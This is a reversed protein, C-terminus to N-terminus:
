QSGRSERKSFNIRKRIDNLTDKQLFSPYVMESLAELPFDSYKEFVDSFDMKLQALERPILTHYKLITNGEESLFQMRKAEPYGKLEQRRQYYLRFIDDTARSGWFRSFWEREESSPARFNDWIRKMKGTVFNYLTWYELLLKRLRDDIVCYRIDGNFIAIPRIMKNENLLKIVREIDENNNGMHRFLIRHANIIDSTSIGPLIAYYVHGENGKGKQEVDVAEKRQEVTFLNESKNQLACYRHDERRVYIERSEGDLCSLPLPNYRTVVLSYYYINNRCYPLRDPKFKDEIELSNM